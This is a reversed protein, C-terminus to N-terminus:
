PFALVMGRPGTHNAPDKCDFNNLSTKGLLAACVIILFSEMTRRILKCKYNGCAEYNGQRQAMRWRALSWGSMTLQLEVIEAKPNASHVLAKSNRPPNSYTNVIKRSVITFNSMFRALPRDRRLTWFFSEVNSKEAWGGFGWGFRGGWFYLNLIGWYSFGITVPPTPPGAKQAIELSWIGLLQGFPPFLFDKWFLDIMPKGEPKAYALVQHLNSLNRSTSILMDIHYLDWAKPFASSLNSFMARCCAKSASNNPHSIVPFNPLLCPLWM